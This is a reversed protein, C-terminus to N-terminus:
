QQNTTMDMGHEGLIAPVGPQGDPRFRFYANRALKGKSTVTRRSKDGGVLLPVAVTGRQSFICAIAQATISGTVGRALFRSGPQVFPLRDLAVRRGEMLGGCHAIRLAVPPGVRSRV